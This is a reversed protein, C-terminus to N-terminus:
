TYAIEECGEQALYAHMQDASLQLLFYHFNIPEISYRACATTYREYAHQYDQMNMM